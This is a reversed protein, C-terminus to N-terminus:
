AREGGAEPVWWPGDEDMHRAAAELVEEYTAPWCLGISVRVPSGGTDTLRLQWQEDKGSGTRAAYGVLLDAAPTRAIVELRGPEDPTRLALRPPPGDLLRALKGFVRAADPLARAADALAQDVRVAEAATMGSADYDPTMLRSLNAQMSAVQRIAEAAAASLDRIVQARQAASLSDDAAM